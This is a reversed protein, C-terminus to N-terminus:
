LRGCVEIWVGEPARVVRWSFWLREERRWGEPMEVSVAARCGSSRRRVLHTRGVRAPAFLLSVGSTEVQEEAGEPLVYGSSNM